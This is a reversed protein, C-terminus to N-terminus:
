LSKLDFTKAKTLIETVTTRSLLAALFFYRSSFIAARCSPFTLRVLSSSFTVQSHTQSWLTMDDPIDLDRDPDFEILNVTRSGRREM